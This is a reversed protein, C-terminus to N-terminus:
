LYGVLRLGLLITILAAGVLLRGCFRHATRLTEARNRIKFQLFGLMPTAVAATVTLVGIWAHLTRLHMGASFAVMVAVATAGCLM